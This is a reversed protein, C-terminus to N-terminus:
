HQLLALYPLGTETLAVLRLAAAQTVAMTVLV